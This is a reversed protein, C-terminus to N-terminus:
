TSFIVIFNKLVRVYMEILQCNKDIYSVIIQAVQFDFLKLVGSFVLKDGTLVNYNCIICIKITKPMCEAINVM